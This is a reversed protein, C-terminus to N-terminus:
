FLLSAAVAFKFQLRLLRRMVLVLHHRASTICGVSKEILFDSSRVGKVGSSVGLTADWGASDFTLTGVKKLLTFEGFM